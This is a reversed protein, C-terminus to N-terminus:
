VDSEDNEFRRRLTSIQSLKVTERDILRRLTNNEAHEYAKYKRKSKLNLLTKEDLINEYFKPVGVKKGNMIVFDHPFVDTKYKELWAAGIGPRRSMTVYPPKRGQYHDAAKDGTVKKLIYRAVYAASEFTVSGILCYGFPWLKQLTESTYLRNGNDIKHLKKDSFDYNFIIAHYHPRGEDDGYEGCHFFRIKVDIQKRLRKMFKQFEEVHVSGDLPLHEDNYTLTLFCNEDYLSAEHMIRIAWQRSRELRCGICQGCPIEIELDNYGDRRNFVIPRRGSPNCTRSRWGRLPRYCPM